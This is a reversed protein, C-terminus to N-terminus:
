IEYMKIKWFEPFGVPFDWIYFVKVVNSSKEDAKRAIIYDSAGDFIIEPFPYGDFSGKRSAYIM